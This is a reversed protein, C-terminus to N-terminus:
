KSSDSTAPEVWTVKIEKAEESDQELDKEIQMLKLYDGLTPKFDDGKLKDEIKDIASQLLETVRLRQKIAKWHGCQRCSKPAKKTAKPKSIATM